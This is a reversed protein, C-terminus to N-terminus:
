ININIWVKSEMSKKESAKQWSEAITRKMNDDGNKYLEKMMGMMDSMPNEDDEERRLQPDLKAM